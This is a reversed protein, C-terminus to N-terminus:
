SACSGAPPPLSARARPPPCATRNTNTSLLITAHRGDGHGGGGKERMRPYAQYRSLISVCPRLVEGSRGWRQGGAGRAPVLARIEKPVAGAWEEAKKLNVLRGCRLADGDPMTLKRVDAFAALWACQSPRM